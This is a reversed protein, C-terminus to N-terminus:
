LKNKSLSKVYIQESNYKFYLVPKVTRAKLEDKKKPHLLFLM